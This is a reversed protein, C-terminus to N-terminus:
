AMDFVIWLVFDCCGGQKQDIKTTFAKEHTTNQIIQVIIINKSFKPGVSHKLHSLYGQLKSRRAVTKNPVHQAKPSEFDEYTVGYVQSINRNIHLWMCIPMAIQMKGGRRSFFADSFFPLLWPAIVRPLPAIIRQLPAIIRECSPSSPSPRKYFRLDRWGRREDM